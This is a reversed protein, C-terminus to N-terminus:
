KETLTITLTHNAARAIELLLSVSPDSRGAEIASIHAQSTGARAALEAQTLGAHQRAKKVTDM